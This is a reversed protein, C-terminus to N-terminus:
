LRADCVFGKGDCLRGGRSDIRGSAFIEICDFSEVLESKEDFEDDISATFDGVKLGLGNFDGFMVLSM